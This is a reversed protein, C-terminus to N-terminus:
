IKRAKKKWDQGVPVTPKQNSFKRYAYNLITDWIVGLITDGFNGGVKALVEM